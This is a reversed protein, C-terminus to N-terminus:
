ITTISIRHLYNAIILPCYRFSELTAVYEVDICIKEKKQEVLVGEM